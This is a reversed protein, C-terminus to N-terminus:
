SRCTPEQLLCCVNLCPDRRDAFYNIGPQASRGNFTETLFAVGLGCQGGLEELTQPTWPRSKVMEVFICLRVPVVRGEDTLLDVADELFRRQEGDASRASNTRLGPWIGNTGQPM